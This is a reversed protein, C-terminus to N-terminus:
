IYIFPTRLKIRKQRWRWQIIHRRHCFVVRCGGFYKTYLLCSIKLSMVPYLSSSSPAPFPFPGLHLVLLIFRYPCIFCVFVFNTHIYLIRTCLCIISCSDVRGHTYFLTNSLWAADATKGLFHTVHSCM